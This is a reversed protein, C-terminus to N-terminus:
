ASRPDQREATAPNHNTGCCLVSYCQGGGGLSAARGQRWGSRDNLPPRCDDCRTLMRVPSRGEDQIDTPTPLGLRTAPQGEPSRNALSNPPMSLVECLLAKHSDLVTFPSLRRGHKGTRTAERARYARVTGIDLDAFRRVGCEEGLWSLFPEVHTV